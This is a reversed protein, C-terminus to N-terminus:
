RVYKKIVSSFSAYFVGQKPNSTLYFLSLNYCVFSRGAQFPALISGTLQVLSSSIDAMIIPNKWEGQTAAIRQKHHLVPTRRGHPSTPQPTKNIAGTTKRKKKKNENISSQAVFTKAVFTKAETSQFLLTM